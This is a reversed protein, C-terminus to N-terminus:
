LVKKFEPDSCKKAKKLLQDFFHESGSNDQGRITSANAAGRSFFLPGLLPHRFVSYKVLDIL